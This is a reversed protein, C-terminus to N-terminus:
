PPSFASLNETIYRLRIGPTRKLFEAVAVNTAMANDHKEADVKGTWETILNIGVVGRRAIQAKLTLRNGFDWASEPASTAIDNISKQLSATFARAASTVIFSVLDEAM